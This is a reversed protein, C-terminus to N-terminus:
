RSRLDWRSWWSRERQGNVTGAPMDARGHAWTSQEARLRPELAAVKRQAEIYRHHEREFRALRRKVPRTDVAGAAALISAGIKLRL